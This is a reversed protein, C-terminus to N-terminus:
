PYVPQYKLLLTDQSLKESTLLTLQIDTAEAFLSTGTGFVRAEITLWLEDILRDRLFASHVLSGGVLACNKKGEGRLREVLERPTASTFELAGPIVEGAYSQPRRTLVHLPHAPSAVRRFVSRMSEYTRSGMVRTDFERLVKSFHQKDEKSTFSSGPEDHRTIFGDLSQAAILVIRM